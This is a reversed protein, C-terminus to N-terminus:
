QALIGEAARQGAWAAGSLDPSYIYDGAFFIKDSVSAQLQEQYNTLYQLSFKVIGHDYRKILSSITDNEHNFTPGACIELKEGVTEVLASDTMALLTPDTVIVDVVTTDQLLYRDSKGINIISGTQNIYGIISDNMFLDGHRVIGSPFQKLYLSVIAIPAYEVANLATQKETSLGSVINKAVYSPTAVAVYDASYSSNDQCTVNVVNGNIVVNTVVKGYLVTAGKATLDNKIARALAGNGDKLLYRTDQELDGYWGVLVTSALNALSGGTEGIIAAAIYDAADQDLTQYSYLYTDSAINDLTNWLTNQPNKDFYFEKSGISNVYDGNITGIAGLLKLMYPLNFNYYQGNKVYGTKLDNLEKKRIDNIYYDIIPHMNNYIYQAGLNAQIGGIEQSYLKGGIYSQSELLTVNCGNDILTIASALGAMGGGIVIVNKPETKTIFKENKFVATNTVTASVTNAVCLSIIFYKLLNNTNV